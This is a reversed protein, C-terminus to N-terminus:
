FVCIIVTRPIDFSGNSNLRSLYVQGSDLESMVLIKGDAQITLGKVSDTAGANYSWDVWGDGGGFSTDLTGDANYRAIVTAADTYFLFNRGAAITKGDNQLVILDLEATFSDRFQTSVSGGTGFSNDPSGDPNYRILEFRTVNNGKTTGVLIKGDSQLLVNPEDLIGAVGNEQVKGGNGFTTDLSGDVNYRVLSLDSITSGSGWVNEVVLIKGDAQVAVDDYSVSLTFLPLRGDGDFTVDLSGDSNYRSLLGATYGNYTTYFDQLVVIKGGTTLALSKANGGYTYYAANVIGDGGGFTSDLSGNSNYRLL